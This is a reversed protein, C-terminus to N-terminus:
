ERARACRGCINCHVALAQASIEMCNAFTMGMSPRENLLAIKKLGPAALNDRMPGVLKKNCWEPCHQDRKVALYALFMVVAPMAPEARIAMERNM